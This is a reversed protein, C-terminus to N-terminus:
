GATPRQWRSPPTQPSWRTLAWGTMVCPACRGGPPTWCVRWSRQSHWFIWWTLLFGCQKIYKNLRKLLIYNKFYLILSGFVIPIQCPCNGIPPALTLNLNNPSINNISTQSQKVIIVPIVCSLLLVLFDIETNPTFLGPGRIHTDPALLESVALIRAHPLNLRALTILQLIPATPPMQPSLSPWWIITNNHDGTPVCSLWCEMESYPISLRPTM